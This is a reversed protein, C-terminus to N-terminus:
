HTSRGLSRPSSRTRCRRTSVDRLHLNERFSWVLQEDEMVAFSRLMVHLAVVACCRSGFTSTRLVHESPPLYQSRIDDFGQVGYHYLSAAATAGSSAVEGLTTAGQTLGSITASTM